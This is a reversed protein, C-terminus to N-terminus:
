ILFSIAEDYRGFTNMSIGKNVYRQAEIINFDPSSHMLEVSDTSHEYFESLAVKLESFNHYRDEPKKELCKMIIRNLGDPINPNIKSPEVPKTLLHQIIMERKKEISKFPHEGTFMEYLVLGFSYIDSSEDTMALGLCQEPSSYPVSGKFVGINCSDYYIKVLGFDSVKLTGDPTILINEPKIDNHILGPVLKTAHIMGNCFQVAYDISLDLDLREQELQIRLSPSDEDNSRIYEMFIYPREDINLVYKAQVINPHKGLKIWTFAESRFREITERYHDFREIYTKIAIDAGAVNDHCMYVIGMGGQKIQNIKYRENILDGVIWKKKSSKIYRPPATINLYQNIFSSDFDEEPKSQEKVKRM